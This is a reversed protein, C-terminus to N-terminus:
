DCLAFNFCDMWGKGCSPCKVGKRLEKESIMKSNCEPCFISDEIVEETESTFLKEDRIFEMVEEDVIVKDTPKIKKSVIKLAEEKTLPPKIRYVEYTKHTCGCKCYAVNISGSIVSKVTHEAAIIGDILEKVPSKITTLYFALSDYEIKFDCESCEYTGSEGM